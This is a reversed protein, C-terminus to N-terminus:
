HYLHEPHQLVTRVQRGPRLTADYSISRALFDLVTWCLKTRKVTVADVYVFDPRWLPSGFGRAASRIIVVSSSPRDKKPGLPTNVRPISWTTQTWAPPLCPAGRARRSAPRQSEDAGREGQRDSRRLPVSQSQPPSRAMRAPAPLAPSRPPASRAPRELRAAAM